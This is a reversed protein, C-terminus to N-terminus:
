GKVGGLVMGKELKKICFPLVALLPLTAIVIVAYQVLYKAYNPNAAKLFDTTQSTIEKVWLQLPWLNRQTPVYISAEFWSNWKMIATNIAMVIAMGKCQPLMVQFMITFHGAGDIAAAEEYSRDVAAFSNMMYLMFMANTCGPIIMALRTGTLGLKRIVMYTPVTGGNFMTTFVFFLIMLARFKTDRSLIYGAMINFVLGLATTGVVYILTNVYGMMVSPDRFLLQYGGFDVGGVPLWAMGSHGLLAKGDSISSVVVHWLPVVCATMVLALFLWMTWDAIRGGLGPNQVMSVTSNEEIKRREREQRRDEWAVRRQEKTKM